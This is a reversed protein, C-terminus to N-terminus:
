QILHFLDVASAAWLKEVKDGNRHEVLVAEHRELIKSLQAADLSDPVLVFDNTKTKLASDGAKLKKLVV